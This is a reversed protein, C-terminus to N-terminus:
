IEKVAEALQKLAKQLISRPTGINLRMFGDGGIGFMEGDNLALHAKEVFLNNLQEHNLGLDRCNLWILFSAEPRLPKIKSINQKCYNEVFVVNSEIYSLMQKRWEEGKTFAQMTAIVAFMTADNFENADLWGFFGKRLDVNPIIVYSSVVGAINFTKSPAGFSISIAAAEDSVSAFPIHKHGFLAMDCHIEDSIVIINHKFCIEALRQLTNRDWCIGGPNHPNCLILLRCENDIVKELGEFDMTYHGDEHMLLTNYVIKRGNGQPVLRFPHYVPPQIIVKDGPKTFYNVVLGIGKVIGPVYSMWENEVQWGHHSEIWRGVISWYNEPMSTYGLIRNDLRKHLAEIIFDPTAFDMDAVWLPLLDDRGWTKMMACHKFDLFGSRDIIEDFNYNKMKDSKMKM